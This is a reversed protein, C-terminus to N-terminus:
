VVCEARRSKRRPDLDHPVASFERCQGQGAGTEGNGGRRRSARAEVPSVRANVAMAPRISAPAEGTIGGITVSAAATVVVNSAPTFAATVATTAPGRQRGRHHSPRDRIRGNGLLTHGRTPGDDGADAATVGRRWRAGPSHVRTSMAPVYRLVSRTSSPRTRNRQEECGSVVAPASATKRPWSGSRAPM